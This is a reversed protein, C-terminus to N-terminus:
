IEGVASSFTISILSLEGKAVAGGAAAGGAAAIAGGDGSPIPIM